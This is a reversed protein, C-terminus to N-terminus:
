RVGVRRGNRRAPEEAETPGPLAPVDDAQDLGLQDRFRQHAEAVSAAFAETNTTLAAIAAFLKRFM